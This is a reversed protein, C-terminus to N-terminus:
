VPRLFKCRHAYQAYVLGIHNSHAPGCLIGLGVATGFVTCALETRRTM